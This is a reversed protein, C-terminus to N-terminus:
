VLTLNLNLGATVDADLVAFHSSLRKVRLFDDLQDLYVDGGGWDM